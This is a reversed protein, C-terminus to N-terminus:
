ARAQRLLRRLRRAQGPLQSLEAFGFEFWETLWREDIEVHKDYLEDMIAEELCRPGASANEAEAVSSREGPASITRYDVRLRRAKRNTSLELDQRCARRSALARAGRPRVRIRDAGAAPARRPRVLRDRRRRVRATPEGRRRGPGPLLREADAVGERATAHRAPDRAGAGVAIELGTEEELERRAAEEGDEGPRMFGGPMDWMGRFPEIGRRALMVRGADDVVIASATPAPERLARARVRPLRLREEDDGQPCPRELEAACRPCHRWDRMGGRRRRPRVTRALPRAADDLGLVHGPQRPMRPRRGAEPRGVHAHGVRRLALAHRAVDADGDLAGDKATASTAASGGTPWTGPASRSSGAPWARTSCRPWSPSRRPPSCRRAGRWCSGARIARLRRLDRVGRRRGDGAAAMRALQLAAPGAAVAGARARRARPRGRARAPRPLRGDRAARARRRAVYEAHGM